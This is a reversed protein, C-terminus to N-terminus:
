ELQSVTSETTSKTLSKLTGEIWKNWLYFVSSVFLLISGWKLKLTWRPEKQYYHESSGWTVKELLQTFVSQVTRFSFVSLKLMFLHIIIHQFKNKFPQFLIFCIELNSKGVFHKVSNVFSCLVTLLVLFQFYVHLALYKFITCLSWFYCHIKRTPQQRTWIRLSNLNSFLVSISTSLGLALLLVINM